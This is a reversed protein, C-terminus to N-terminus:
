WGTNFYDSSLAAPTIAHPCPTTGFFTGADPGAAVDAISFVKGSTTDLEWLCVTNKDGKNEADGVYVHLSTGWDLTDEVDQLEKTDATYTQNDTYIVKEATLANRLDSQANEPGSLPAGWARDSMHALFPPLCATTGFYTGVDAGTAVDAISFVSGSESLQWLCVTQKDESLMVHLAGGWDLSGETSSLVNLDATYKQNDTYITKEAVLGNRLDSQAARNQAAHVQPDSSSAAEDTTSTTDNEFGPPPTINVAVGFNSYSMSTDIHETVGLVSMDITNTLKRLRGRDDLAATFPMPPINAGLEDLTNQLNERQSASLSSSSALAKVDITGAYTTVDVGEITAPGVVHVDSSIASLYHLYQTPDGNGFADSSDTKDAASWDGDKRIYEKGGVVRLEGEESGESSTAKLTMEAAQHTFNISGSGSIDATKTGSGLGSASVKIDMVFDATHADTTSTVAALLRASPSANQVAESWPKGGCGAILVAASAFACSTILIRRM